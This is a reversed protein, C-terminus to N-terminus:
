GKTYIVCQVDSNWNKKESKWGSLMLKMDTETRFTMQLFFLFLFFLLVQYNLVIMVVGYELVSVTAVMLQMPILPQVMVVVIYLRMVLEFVNNQRTYVCFFFIGCVYFLSMFVIGPPTQCTDGTYGDTCACVCGDRNDNDTTTGHNNCNTHFQCDSPLM